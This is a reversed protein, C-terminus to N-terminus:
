KAQGLIQFSGSTVAVILVSQWGEGGGGVSEKVVLNQTTVHGAAVLSVRPVVLSSLLSPRPVLNGLFPLARWLNRAPKIYFFLMRNIKEKRNIPRYINFYIIKDNFPSCDKVFDTPVGVGM